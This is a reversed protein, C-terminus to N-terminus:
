AVQPTRRKLAYFSELSLPAAMMQDTTTAERNAWLSAVHARIAMRIDSPTDTINPGYGAQYVVTIPFQVVNSSSTWDHFGVFDTNGVREQTFTVVNGKRDTASTISQVPGRPLVHRHRWEGGWYSLTPLHHHENIQYTITRTLLSADLAQEAYETAADILDELYQKEDDSDIRLQARIQPYTVLPPFTPRTNTLM